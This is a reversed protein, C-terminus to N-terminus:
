VDLSGATLVWIEAERIAMLVVDALRYLESSPSDGLRPDSEAARTRFTNGAQLIALTVERGDDLFRSVRLNGLRVVVDVPVPPHYLQDAILAISTREKELERVLSRKQAFLRDERSFAFLAPTAAAAPTTM